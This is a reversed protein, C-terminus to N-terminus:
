KLKKFDLSPDVDSKNEPRNPALGHVSGGDKRRETHSHEAPRWRGDGPVASRCRSCGCLLRLLPRPAKADTQQEMGGDPM